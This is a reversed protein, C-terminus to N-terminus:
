RGPPRLVAGPLIVDPDAGIVTENAAHWRPWEAAIEAVDADPGLARAAIDWLTDGRRVVVEELVAEQVSPAAVVLGVDVPTVSPTAVPVDPPVDPLWGDDLAPREPTPLDAFARVEVAPLVSADTMTVVWPAPAVAAGPAAAAVAPTTAAVAPAAAALPGAAVTLGVAMRVAGRWAAPTVRVAVAEGARGVAGSVTSVATAGLCLAVWALVLDAGVAAAAAVMDDFSAGPATAAGCTWRTVLLCTLASAGLPTVTALWVGARRTMLM